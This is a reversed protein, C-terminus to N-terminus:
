DGKIGLRVQLSWEEVVVPWQKVLLKTAGSTGHEAPGALLADLDANKVCEMGIAPLEILM